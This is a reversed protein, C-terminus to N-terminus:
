RLQTLFLADGRRHARIGGPFSIAASEARRVMGALQQWEHYGMDQLPWGATSWAAKCVERVLIPPEAALQGCDVELGTKSSSVCKTTLPEVLSAILAQTEEAQLALRLLSEDVESNFHARLLPLLEHRLRNRTYRVDANTVDVRYDQGYAALYALVESRSSDRIPRVLTVTPSLPRHRPMGSLGAVGTGRLIRHLITEVQDDATHAVAVFRAGLREATQTLFEYRAQRAAAEIGDGLGDAKDRVKAHGVELPVGLHRCLDRLWAEDAAAEDTRIGHNLHAAFLQGAGGVREKVAIALRLMAISDAGGSIAIVVHVDRWEDIPWAEAFAREFSPQPASSQLRTM